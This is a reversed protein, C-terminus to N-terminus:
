NGRRETNYDIYKKAREMSVLGSCYSCKVMGFDFYLASPVNCRCRKIKPNILAKLHTILSKKAEEKNM